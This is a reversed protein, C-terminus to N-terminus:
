LFRGTAPDLAPHPRICVPSAYPQKGCGVDLVRGGYSPLLRSLRRHLYLTSLWQFHWPHEHPHQGCLIKYIYKYLQGLSLANLYSMM